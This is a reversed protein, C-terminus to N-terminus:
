SQPSVENHNFFYLYDSVSGYRSLNLREDNALACTREPPFIETHLSEKRDKDSTLSRSTLWSKASEKDHVPVNRIGLSRAATHRLDLLLLLLLLLLMLTTIMM